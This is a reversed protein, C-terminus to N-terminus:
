ESKIHFVVKLLYMHLLAFNHSLLQSGINRTKVIWAKVAEQVREHMHLTIKNVAQNLISIFERTITM